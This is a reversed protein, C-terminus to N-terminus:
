TLLFDLSRLIADDFAPTSFRGVGPIIELRSPIDFANLADVLRALGPDAEGALFAGRTRTNEHAQLLRMWQEPDAMEEGTPAIALFGRVAIGGALPLWAALGGGRGVGALVIRRPDVPYKSRLTGLHNELAHLTAEADDWVYAGSWRAQTSQPIATIWGRAAIPKWYPISQLAASFNDHLGVLLPCPNAWDHCQKEQRLILLPLLSAQERTQLVAFKSVRTEFDHLGQLAELSPSGRLLEQSIWLDDQLLEDMFYFALTPQTARAAMSIQWYTLFLRQEPYAARHADILAVVEEYEGDEYLERLHTEFLPFPIPAPM